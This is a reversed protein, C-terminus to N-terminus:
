DTNNHLLHNTNLLVNELSTLYLTQICKVDQFLSSFPSLRLLLDCVDFVFGTLPFDCFALTATDAEAEIMAPPNAESPLM